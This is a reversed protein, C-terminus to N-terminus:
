KNAFLLQREGDKATVRYVEQSKPHFEVCNPTYKKFGSEIRENIIEISSSIDTIDIGKMIAPGYDWWKLLVLQEIIRDSFRQRLVKAPTGGVITYPPVDKTVVARAAIVAGDGIKVGRSIYAGNGIWVDNGIEIKGQRNSLILEKKHLRNIFDMDEYLPTSEEWNEDFKWTFMPHPSISRVSHEVNGTVVHPGFACFRGVEKIHELHSLGEGFFSFAGIKDIDVFGGRLQIPAEAVIPTNRWGFGITAKGWLINIGNKLLIPSSELLM